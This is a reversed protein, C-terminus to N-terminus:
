NQIAINHEALLLTREGLEKTPLTAPDITPQEIKHDIGLRNSHKFNEPDKNTLTFIISTDTPMIFKTVTRFSKLKKTKGNKSVEFEQTVEEYQHGCLKMALGTRAMTKFSDLRLADAEKLSQLFELKYVSSKPDKWKHFLAESIGVKKCIDIIRYEGTSLLDFIKKKIAPTYKSARGGPSKKKARKM